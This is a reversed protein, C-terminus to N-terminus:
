FIGTPAHSKRKVGICTSMASYPLTRTEQCSVVEMLIISINDHSGVTIALDVLEDCKEQLSQGKRSLTHEMTEPFVCGHLGDSTAVIIDEPCCSLMQIHCHTQALKRGLCATITHRQDESFSAETIEPHAAAYSHDEGLQILKRGRFLWVRSDGVHFVAVNRHGAEHRAAFGAVTTAMRAHGAELLQANMVAQNAAQISRLIDDSGGADKLSVFSRAAILSADQGWGCGSVGDCVVGYCVDADSGSICIDISGNLMITDENVSRCGKSTSGAFHFM